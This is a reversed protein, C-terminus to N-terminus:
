AAVTAMKAKKPLDFFFTTGNGERSRFDITGGHHEIIAKCISLGLGTGGLSRREKTDAQTFREFINGALEAPVGNGHDTVSVRLSPGTDEVGIEVQGGRPSFKAANSLLNAMVQMLRDRNGQLFVPGPLGSRVLNVGYQVAYAANEEIAQQLLAALDLDELKLDMRGAEIKELDLIDSVLLLLREANRQAIDVLGAVREPLPGGTGAAVLSLAGRISTLPTRLEHSVTAVFQAKMREVEREDTIDRVIAVFHSLRDTVPVLQLNVEIWRPGVEARFTVAQARHASSMGEMLARAHLAIIDPPIAHGADRVSRGLYDAESWGAWSMAKHNLYVFRLSDASFVYVEDQLLDLTMRLRHEAEAQKSETIDTRVAIVKRLSGDINMVPMLSSRTWFAEGSKRRLMTEGAWTEGRSLIQWIECLREEDIVDAFIERLSRGLIEDRTFGSIRLFNDNAYTIIGDPDTFNVMCHQDLARRKMELSSKADHIAQRTRRNTAHIHLALTSAAALILLALAPVLWEASAVVSEFRSVLESM